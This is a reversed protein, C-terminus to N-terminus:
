LCSTADLRGSISLKLEMETSQRSKWSVSTSLSRCRVKILRKARMIDSNQSIGRTAGMPMNVVFRGLISVYGGLSLL